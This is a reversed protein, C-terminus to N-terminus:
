INYAQRLEPLPTSWHSEWDLGFIPKSQKGMLWGRVVQDMIEHTLVPNKISNVVLQGGILLPSLPSHIQAMMFAQLGLEGPVSTDFGTLTHWLDHTQRMKMVVYSSDTNIEVKDYFDPNLKNDLMHRAYNHALTGEPKQRLEELDWDALMKRASFVDTDAFDTVLKQHEQQMLGLAMLQDVVRFVNETANPNRSIRGLYIFLFIIHYIRKIKKMLKM